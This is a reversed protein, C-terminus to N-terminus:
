DYDSCRCPAEQCAGCYRAYVDYDDDIDIDENEYCSSLVDVNELVYSYVPRGNDEKLLIIVFHNDYNPLLIIKVINGKWINVYRLSSTVDLGRKLADCNDLDLVGIGSEGCSILILNHSSLIVIDKWNIEKENLLRDSKKSVYFYEAYNKNRYVYIIENDNSIGYDWTFLALYEKNMTAKKITEYGANDPLKICRTHHLYELEGFEYIIIHKDYLSNVIVFLRDGDILLDAICNGSQLESFTVPSFHLPDVSDSVLLEIQTNGISNGVGVGLVIKGRFLRIFEPAAHKKLEISSIHLFEGQENIKGYVLKSEESNFFVLIGNESIFYNDSTSIATKSSALTYYGSLIVTKFVDEQKDPLLFIPYTKM